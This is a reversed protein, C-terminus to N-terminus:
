ASISSHTSRFLFVHWMVVAGTHAGRGSAMSLAASPRGDSTLLGQCATLLVLAAMLILMAAAGRIVRRLKRAMPSSTGAGGGEAAAAGGGCAGLLRGCM